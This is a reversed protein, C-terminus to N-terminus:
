VTVFINAHICHADDRFSPGDTECFFTTAWAATAFSRVIFRALGVNCFRMSFIVSSTNNLYCGESFGKLSKEKM